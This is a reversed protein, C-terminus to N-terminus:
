LVRLVDASSRERRTMARLVTTDGHKDRAMELLVREALMAAAPPPAPTEVGVSVALDDTHVLVEVIRTALYQELTLVLGGRVAILRDPPADALVGRAEAVAEQWRQFVQSPGAAADTRARERVGRNQPTTLDTPDDLVTRYYAAASIPEAVPTLQGLYSLVNTVARVLHATLDGVTMDALASPQDWRRAIEPSALVPEAASVAQFFAETTPEPAPLSPTGFLRLATAVDRAVSAVGALSRVSV